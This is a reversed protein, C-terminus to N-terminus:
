TPDAVVPVPSGAGSCAGATGIGACSTDRTVFAVHERWGVCFRRALVWLLKDWSRLRARPQTRTPRTLVALQHRLLLNELVLDQRPRAVARLTTLLLWLLEIVDVADEM